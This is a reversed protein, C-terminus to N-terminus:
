AINKVWGEFDKKLTQWDINDFMKIEPEQEADDFFVLSRIIHGIDRQGYKEEFQELYYELPNFHKFIFHLDIFDKRSGRNAVASLKMCAIDNIGALLVECPEWYRLTQLLPYNYGIFSVQVSDIELYVTEHRIAFVKFDLQVAHLDRYLDEPEGIVEAFFDFDVSPRHGIQLALATGGALYMRRRSMAKGLVPLIVQQKQNLVEPYM